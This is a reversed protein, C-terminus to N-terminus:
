GDVCFTFVVPEGVGGSPTITFTNQWIGPMFLEINDVVYRGPKDGAKVTPIITAAHGHEPMFPKLTITAGDIPNGQADAVDITWVNGGKEPPAPLADAFTVKISGDTSAASIGVAYSTVRPDTACAPGSTTTTQGGSGTTDSGCGVLALALLLAAPLASQITPM